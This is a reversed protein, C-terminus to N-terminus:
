NQKNRYRYYMKVTILCIENDGGGENWDVKQLVNMEHCM